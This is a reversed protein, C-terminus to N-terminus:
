PRRQDVPARPVGLPEVLDRVRIREPQMRLVRRAEAHRGALEQLDRRGDAPEDVLDPHGLRDPGADDGARMMEPPPPERLRRAALAPAGREDTERSLRPALPAHPLAVADPR